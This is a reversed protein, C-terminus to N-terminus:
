IYKEPTSSKEQGCGVILSSLSGGMSRISLSSYYECSGPVGLSSQTWLNGILPLDIEGSRSRRTVVHNSCYRIPDPDKSECIAETERGAVGHRKCRFLGIPTHCQSPGAQTTTVPRPVNATFDVSRTLKQLIVCRHQFIGVASTHTPWSSYRSDKEINNLWIIVEGGEIDDRYDYRQTDVDKKPESIAPHSLISVAERGSLGLTQLSGVIARERRLQELLAFADIQRPSVQLGNMWLVNYGSPLLIERNASHEKRFEISANRKTMAYSHKPFDQSVKMLTDIPDDSAIIFSATKFGVGLLHKASLPQLDSLEEHELLVEATSTNEDFAIDSASESRQAQEEVGELEKGRDDIVIYDTRKLALEIGYGNLALPKAFASGSRRYRVRYSTQGDRATGSITQHIHGFLPSMIDAYLISPSLLSESSGGLVRDFPLIELNRHGM